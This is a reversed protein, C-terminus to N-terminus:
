HTTKKENRLRRFEASAQPIDFSVEVNQPILGPLEPLPSPQNEM